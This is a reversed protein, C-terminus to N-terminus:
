GIYVKPFNTMIDGLVQEELCKCLSTIYPTHQNEKDRKVILNVFMREKNQARSIEALNPLLFTRKTVM